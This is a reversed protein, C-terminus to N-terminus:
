CCHRCAEGVMGHWAMDDVERRWFKTLSWILVIAVVAVVM